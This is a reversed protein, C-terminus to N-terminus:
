WIVEFGLYESLVGRVIENDTGIAIFGVTRYHTVFNSRPVIQTMSFANFNEMQLIEAIQLFDM